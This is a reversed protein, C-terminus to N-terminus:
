DWQMQSLHLACGRLAALDDKILAVPIKQLIHRYPGGGLFATEFGSAALHPAVARAVGGILYLGGTAMHGICASGAVAGLLTGFAETTANPATALIDQPAAEAGTLHHHLRCLGAGSLAAEVPLHGNPARLTDFLSRFDPMDPLPTHGFEAAPVFLKQGIRHAIALNCGTGVGIVLRPGTPDASGSRLRELGSPDLDGLAFAQAQLDNLLYCDLAGTASILESTQATWDHNTLKAFGSEVPGAVAACIATLSSPRIENLYARLLEPLGLHEANKLVRATVPEFRGDMALGLRCHTGGLDILLQEAMAGDQRWLVHRKRLFYWM